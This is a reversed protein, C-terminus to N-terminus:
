RSNGEPYTARHVGMQSARRAGALSAQNSQRSAELVHVNSLPSADPCGCAVWLGRCARWDGADAEDVLTEVRRRRESHKVKSQKAKSQRPGDGCGGEGRAGMSAWGRRAIGALGLM